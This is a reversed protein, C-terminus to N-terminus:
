ESESAIKRDFFETTALNDQLEPMVRKFLREANAISTLLSKHHSQSKPPNGM